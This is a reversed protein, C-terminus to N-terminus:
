KRQKKQKKRKGSKEKRKNKEFEEEKVRKKPQIKYILIYYFYREFPLGDKEILTIYFIPFTFLFIGLMAIDQGVYKMLIHYSYYGIMGAIPFGILQRKTLHFAIKPKIKKIDRPISVFLKDRREM